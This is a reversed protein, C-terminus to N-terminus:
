APKRGSLTSCCPDDPTRIPCYPAQHLAGAAAERLAACSSNKENKSAEITFPTEFTEGNVM